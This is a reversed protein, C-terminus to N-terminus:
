HLSYIWKQAELDDNTATATCFLCVASTGLHPDWDTNLSSMFVCDEAAVTEFVQQNQLEWYKRSSKNILVYICAM